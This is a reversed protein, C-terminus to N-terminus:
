GQFCLRSRDFSQTAYGCQGHWRAAGKAEEAKLFRQVCRGSTCVATSAIECVQGIPRITESGRFYDVLQCVCSASRDMRYQSCGMRGPVAIGNVAFEEAFDQAAAERSSSRRSVLRPGLTCSSMRACSTCFASAGFDLNGTRMSGSMAREGARSASYAPARSDICVRCAQEDSATVDRACVLGRISITVCCRRKSLEHLRLM